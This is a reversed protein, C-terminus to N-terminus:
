CGLNAALMYGTRANKEQKGCYQGIMQVSTGMNAAIGCISARKRTDIVACFHRLSYRRDRTGHRQELM